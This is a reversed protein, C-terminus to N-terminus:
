LLTHDKKLKRKISKTSAGKLNKWIITKIVLGLECQM